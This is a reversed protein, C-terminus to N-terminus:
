ATLRDDFGKPIVHLDAMEHPYSFGTMRRELASATRIGGNPRTTGFVGAHLFPPVVFSRKSPTPTKQVVRGFPPVLTRSYGPQCIPELVRSPECSNLHM